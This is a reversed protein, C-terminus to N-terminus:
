GRNAAYTLGTDGVNTKAEIQAGRNLLVEIAAVYGELAAIMLSMSGQNELYELRYSNVIALSM